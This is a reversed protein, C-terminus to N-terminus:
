ITENRVGELIKFCMELGATEAQHRTNIRSIRSYTWEGCIKYNVVVIFEKVDSYEVELVIGQKDMFDTIQSWYDRINASLDFEVIDYQKLQKGFKKFYYKNWMEWAKQYKKSIQKFTM